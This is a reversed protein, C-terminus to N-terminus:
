KLTRWAASGRKQKVSAQDITGETNNLPFKREARHLIFHTTPHTLSIKSSIKTIKKDDVGSFVGEGSPNIIIKKLHLRVIVDM